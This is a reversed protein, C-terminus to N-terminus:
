VGECDCDEVPVRDCDIVSETVCVGESVAVGDCDCVFLWDDVAESVCDCVREWLWDLDLM